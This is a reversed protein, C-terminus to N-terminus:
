NFTLASLPGGVINGSGFNDRVVNNQMTFVHGPDGASVGGNTNFAIVSTALMVLGGNSQDIGVRQNSMIRSDTVYVLSGQFAAIGHGKNNVVQSSSIHGRVGANQGNFGIGIDASHDVIVREIQAEASASAPLVMIGITAYSFQSDTIVARINDGIAIGYVGGEVRVNTITVDAVSTTSLGISQYGINSITCRDIILRAGDAFQIGYNGAPGNITLGRLAVVIAPGAIAIGYNGSVTIGAYIGPAATISISQGIAVPGYGASDLVIVEGGPSTKGVASGFSRCPAGISCANGDSGYSAVFTRQSLALAHEGWGLCVAVVIWGFGRSRLMMKSGGQGSSRRRGPIKAQGAHGYAMAGKRKASLQLM